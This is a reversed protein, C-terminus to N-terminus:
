LVPVRADGAIRVSGRVQPHPAPNPAAASRVTVAPLVLLKELKMGAAKASLELVDSVTLIAGAASAQPIGAISLRVVRRGDTAVHHLTARALDYRCTQRAGRPPNLLHARVVNAGPIPALLSELAEADDLACTDRTASLNM